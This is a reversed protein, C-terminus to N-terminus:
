LERSGQESILLEIQRWLRSEQGTIENLRKIRALLHLRQKEAQEAAIREVEKRENEQTILEAAALLEGVPRQRINLTPKVPNEQGQEQNFRQLFMLSATQNGTTSGRLVDVLVDDKESESLTGVWTRFDNAQSAPNLQLAPSMQAAAEILNPDVHLLMAFNKLASNLQSLGPPVTTLTTDRRM